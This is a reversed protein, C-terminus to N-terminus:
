ILFDNNTIFNLSAMTTNALIVDQGGIGNNDLDIVVDSGQQSALAQVAALNAFGFATLDLKDNGIGNFDLITASKASAQFVFTDDGHGGRYSVGDTVDSTTVM